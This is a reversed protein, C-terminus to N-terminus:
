SFFSFPSKSPPRRPLTTKSFSRVRFYRSAKKIKQRIAAGRKQGLGVRPGSKQLLGPNKNGSAGVKANNTHNHNALLSREPQKINFFLSVCVEVEQEL